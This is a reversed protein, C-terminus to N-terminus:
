EEEAEETQLQVFISTKAERDGTSSTATNVTTSAVLPDAELRRVIEASEALTVDALELQVQSGGISISIVDTGALAGDLMALVDMRDVLYREEDTASYRFYDQRVENYDSLKLMASNLEQQAAALDNQAERNEMWLDYVLLKSLGLLCVVAFLVYLAVTSPKTTRDPKYFLNMSTKTPYVAKRNM